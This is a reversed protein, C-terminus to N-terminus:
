CLGEGLYTLPVLIVLQTVPVEAQAPTKFKLGRTAEIPYFMIFISLDFDLDLVNDVPKLGGNEGVCFIAIM